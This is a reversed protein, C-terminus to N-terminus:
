SELISLQNIFEEEGIAAIKSDVFSNRSVNVSLKNNKYEREKSLLYQIVSEKTNMKWNGKECFEVNRPM